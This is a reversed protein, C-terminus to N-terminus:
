GRKAFRYENVDGVPRYGIRRYISNSTPNDLDTFLFCFRRATRLQRRSLEAVLSTAYGRGRKEPPTYVASVRIGSVTPSGAGAMSVPEGGVTWLLLERDKGGLWRDARGAVQPQEPLAERHLADLWLEILPRDEETARRAAGQSERVEAISDLQYIRLRKALRFNRDLARAYSRAFAGVLEAPGMVGDIEAGTASLDAILPELLTADRALSLSLNFPPTRIAVLATMGDQEVLALYPERWEGRVIQPLLGLQLCHVAENQLLYPEALRAFEVPDDFRRLQLHM